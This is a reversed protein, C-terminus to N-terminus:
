PRGSQRARRITAARVPKVKKRLRLLKEIAKNRRAAREREDVAQKMLHALVASKNERAFTKDFAAKITEPVSFNVTAM